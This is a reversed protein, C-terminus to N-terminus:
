RCSASGIKPAAIEVGPIRKFAQYQAMTIGGFIGSLYNDEVLGQSQELSTESGKPRALIDYAPRLNKQVTGTVQAAQTNTAATLLSFSVAAVLIGAVMAAARGSRHRTQQLILQWM